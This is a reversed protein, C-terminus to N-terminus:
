GLGFGAEDDREAKEGEHEEDGESSVVGEKIEEGDGEAEREDFVTEVRGDKAWFSNRKRQDGDWPSM